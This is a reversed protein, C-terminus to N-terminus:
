KLSLQLLISFQSIFPTVNLEISIRDIAIKNRSVDDIPKGAVVVSPLTLSFFAIFFPM